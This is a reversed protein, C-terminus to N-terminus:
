GHEIVQIEYGIANDIFEVRSTSLEVANIVKSAKKTEQKM